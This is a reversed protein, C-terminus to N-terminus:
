KNIIKNDNIIYKRFLGNLIPNIIKIWVKNVQKIEPIIILVYQNEYIKNKVKKPPKNTNNKYVDLIAELSIKKNERFLINIKKIKIENIKIM